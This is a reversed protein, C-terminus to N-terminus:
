LLLLIAGPACDDMWVCCISFVVSVSSSIPLGGGLRQVIEKSWSYVDFKLVGTWMKGSDNPFLVIHTECLLVFIWALDSTFLHKETFLVHKLWELLVLGITDLPFNNSAWNVCSPFYVNMQCLWFELFVTLVPNRKENRMTMCVFPLVFCFLGFCCVFLESDFIVATELVSCGSVLWMFYPSDYKDQMYLFKSPVVSQTREDCIMLTSLLDCRRILSWTESKRSTSGRIM